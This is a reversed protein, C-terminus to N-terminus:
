LKLCFFSCMKACDCAAFGISGYFHNNIKEEEDNSFGVHVCVTKAGQTKFIALMEAMFRKGFGKLRFEDWIRLGDLFVVPFVPSKGSVMWTEKDLYLYPRVAYSEELTNFLFWSCVGVEKDNYIAKKSQEQPKTSM